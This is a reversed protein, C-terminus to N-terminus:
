RFKYFYYLLFGIVLLLILTFSISIIQLFSQHYLSLLIIQLVAFIVVPIYVKTLKISLFFTAMLYVLSYLTIYLGFFGLYPTMQLFEKKKLIFTIAFEPFLTYVITILISPVFVLILSIKFTHRFNEKNTHQRVIIPFMVTGIPAVIYFIIRGITSLGAYLGADVPNYFHKVLMIDTSIFATLGCLTLVAPIGYKVIETTDITVNKTKTHFLFKLPTFSFFYAFLAGALIAGVAGSVSYGSYVFLIGLILKIFANLFIVLVNFGFALKAQLFSLNVIGIFTIFITFGALVLLTMNTIHFFNGINTINVLFLALVLIGVVLFFKTFKFYLGRLHTYDKKVFYDGAFRVIVPNVAASILWPFTILSSVSALIGYDAVPLNWTMFLNFLFNFINAAFGGVVVIGSGYILPNKLLKKAKQKMSSKASVVPKKTRM